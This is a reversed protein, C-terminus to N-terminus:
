NPRRVEQETVRRFVPTILDESYFTAEKCTFLSEGPDIAVHKNNRVQKRSNRSSAHRLLALLLISRLHM